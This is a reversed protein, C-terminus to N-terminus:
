EVFTTVAEEAVKWGDDGRRMLVRGELRSGSADIGRVELLASDASARGGAVTMERPRSSAMLAVMELVEPQELRQGLDRARTAELLGLWRDVDGARGAELYALYAEGPAGGGAALPEGAGDDDAVAVSFRLDVERGAARDADTGSLRGAVRQDDNRTLKCRRAIFALEHPGDAGVLRAEVTAPRRGDVTLTLWGSGQAEMQARITRGPDLAWPLPERDIAAGALVVVTVPDGAPRAVRYAYGDVPSVAAAGQRLVGSTPGDAAGAGDAAGVCLTAVVLWPPVRRGM